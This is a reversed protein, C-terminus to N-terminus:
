NIFGPRKVLHLFPEKGTHYYPQGWWPVIQSVLVWLFVQPCRGPITECSQHCPSKWGQSGKLVEGFTLHTPLFTNNKILAMMKGGVSVSLLSGQGWGVQCAASPSLCFPQFCGRPTCRPAKPTWHEALIPNLTKHERSGFHGTLKKGLRKDQSWSYIKVSLILNFITKHKTICGLCVSCVVCLTDCCVETNLDIILWTICMINLNKGNKWHKTAALHFKM